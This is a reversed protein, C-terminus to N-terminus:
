ENNLFELIAVQEGLFASDTLKEILGYMYGIQYMYFEEGDEKGTVIRAKTQLAELFQEFAEEKNM